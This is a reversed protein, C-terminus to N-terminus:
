LVIFYQQPDKKCRYLRYLFFIFLNNWKRQKMEQCMGVMLWYFLVIWGTLNCWWGWMRYEGGNLKQWCEYLVSIPSFTCCCCCCCFCVSFIWVRYFVFVGVFCKDYLRHIHHTHHARSTPFCFFNMLTTKSKSLWYSALDRLQLYHAGWDTLRLSVTLTLAHTQKTHSKKIKM